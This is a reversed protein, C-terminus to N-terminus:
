LYDLQYDFEESTSADFLGEYLTDGRIKGCVSILLQNHITKSICLDFM